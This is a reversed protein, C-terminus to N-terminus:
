KRFCLPVIVDAGVGLEILRAALRCADDGLERYTLSGDWSAVAEADPTQRTVDLITDHVTSDVRVLPKSNWDEIQKRNRDSLLDAERVTSDPSSLVLYLARDVTTAITKAFETTVYTNRYELFVSIGTKLM